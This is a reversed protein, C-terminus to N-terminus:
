EADPRMPIAVGGRYAQMFGNPNYGLNDWVFKLIFAKAHTLMAVTESEM